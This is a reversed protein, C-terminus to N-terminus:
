RALLWRRDSEPDLAVIRDRQVPLWWITAVANAPQSTASQASLTPPSTPTPSKAM